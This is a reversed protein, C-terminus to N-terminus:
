KKPHIKLLRDGKYAGIYIDNKVKLAESVSSILQEDVASQHVVNVKMTVPDIEAVGFQQVCPHASGAPCDGSDRRVGAALMSVKHVGPNLRPDVWSLNDPMFDVDVVQVDKQFKLDYKHVKHETWANLYLFRGDASVLVGNPFGVRTGPIEELGKARTWRVVYGTPKGSALSAADTKDDKMLAAPNSSIFDGDPLAAVDNFHRPSLVCGHWALEWSTGKRRLEYMEMSQRQNHNVVYLEFMGNARKNLSIGHAVTEKALPGPCSASGWDTRPENVVSIKSFSKKAIDFLQIGQGDGKADVGELQAVLLYKGDPTPELDEPSHTGCLVEARDQQTSCAALATPRAPTEQARTLGTASITLLLILPAYGTCSQMM